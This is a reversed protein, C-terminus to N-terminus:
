GRCSAEVPGYLRAGPYGPAPSYGWGQQRETEENVQLALEVGPPVALRWEVHRAKDHAAQWAWLAEDMSAGRGIVHAREGGNKPLPLPNASLCGEYCKACFAAWQSTYPPMPGDEIINVACGCSCRTATTVINVTEIETQKAIETMQNM